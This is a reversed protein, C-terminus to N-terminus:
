LFYKLRWAKSGPKPEGATTFFKVLHETTIGHEAYFARLQGAVTVAPNTKRHGYKRCKSSCFRADERKGVIPKGCYECHKDM